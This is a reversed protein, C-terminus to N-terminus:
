YKKEVQADSFGLAKLRLKVDAVEAAQRYPGVLVRFLDPKSSQELLGPFSQERLTKVLNEADARRLAAIQLYMGGTEVPAAEVPQADRAPQTQIPAVSSQAPSETQSPPELDRPRPSPAQEVATNADPITVTQKSSNGRVTYGLAFFVGCLVVVVFFFSILQKNGLVLEKEGDM